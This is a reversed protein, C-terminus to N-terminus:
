NFDGGPRPVDRNVIIGEYSPRLRPDNADRNVMDTVPHQWGTYRLNASTYSIEDSVRRGEMDEYVVEVLSTARFM